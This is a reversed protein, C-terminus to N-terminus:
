RKWATPLGRGSSLPRSDEGVLQKGVSRSEAILSDHHQAADEGEASQLANIIVERLFIRASRYNSWMSSASISPYIHYNDGCIPRTVGAGPSATNITTYSSSPTIDLLSTVLDTDLKLAKAIIDSKKIFAGEKLAACFANLRLIVAALNDATQGEASSSHEAKETLYALMPSSPSQRYIGSLCIGVRLHRFLELGAPRELQEAGRVEVIRTAGDVHGMWRRISSADTCTMVEYTSLLVVAALVDDRKCEVPDDLASGIMCITTTYEQKAESMVQRSRGMNALAALGVATVASQLASDPSRELLSVLCPLYGGAMYNAYMYGRAVQRTPLTMAQCPPPQPSSSCRKNLVTSEITPLVDPQKRAKQDQSKRKVKENQDRFTLKLPDRYECSDVGARLCASCFPTGKDCKLRRSRCRGCARSPKGCFVMTLSGRLSVGFQTGESVTPSPD